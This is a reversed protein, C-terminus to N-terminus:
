PRPTWYSLCAEVSFPSLFIGKEREGAERFVAARKPFADNKRLPM